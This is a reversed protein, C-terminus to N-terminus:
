KKLSEIKKMSKKGLSEEPYTDAVKQYLQVARDNDKLKKEALEAADYLKEAALPNKTYRASLEEYIQIAKEYDKMRKEYVEGAKALAEPAYHSDPFRDAVFRCVAISGEYQKLQSNQLNAKRMLAEPVNPSFPYLDALNQYEEAASSPNLLKEETIRALNWQAEAKMSSDAESRTVERYIVIAQNYEKLNAGYLDAAKIKCTLVADSKPYMHVIRLYSALAMWYDKNEQYMDGMWLSLQPVSPHEPYLQIFLRCEPILADNLKPYLLDHLRNLMGLYRGAVTSDEAADDFLSLLKEQIPKLNYDKTVAAAEEKAKQRRLSAPYLLAAKLFNVYARDYKNQKMQFQALAWQVDASQKGEPYVLFYSQFVDVATEYLKKENLDSLANGYQVLMSDMQGHALASGLISILLGNKLFSCPSKIIKKQM